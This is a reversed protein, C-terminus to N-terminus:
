VRDGFRRLWIDDMGVGQSAQVKVEEEGAGQAGLQFKLQTFTPVLRM